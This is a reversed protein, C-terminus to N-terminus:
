QKEDGQHMRLWGVQDYQDQHCYTKLPLKHLELLNNPKQQCDNVTGLISDHFAFKLGPKTEGFKLYYHSEDNLTLNFNNM